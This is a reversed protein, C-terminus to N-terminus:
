PRVTKGLDGREAWSSPFPRQMASRGRHAAPSLFAVHFSPFFRASDGTREVAKNPM